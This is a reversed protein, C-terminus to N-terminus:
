TVISGADMDKDTTLLVCTNGKEACLLMAESVEGGFKSPKLNTLVVIRKGVLETEKYYDVLSTVIQVPKKEGIDVQLKYLKETKPVKEASIIKGIKLKLKKWTDFDIQDMKNVEKNVKKVNTEDDSTNMREAKASRFLEIAKKKAALAFPALKPGRDKNLLVKYAASFFEKPSIEVEEKCIKYFENFLTEENFRGKDMREAALHLADVQKESLDLGKAVKDQLTFKYQESAFESIWKRAFNLRDIVYAEGEKDLDEPLHGTEKLNAIVEEDSRFIQALTAAHTFPVQPPMKKPLEGTHSLEYIRSQKLKEKEDVEQADFYVREAYDYREYLLILDNSEYPQFDIVANPRSKVLLFRLMQAPAYDTSDAFGMGHGKSTSMKKGGVTFFEYGPGTKYGESPYPPPYKFVDTAIRCAITRSGGHTFHDKGATEVIVGKTPWKAAWEVKWPFKGGGNYPSREGEYGCGKAWTVFDPLCKYKIMERKADWETTVTTGIKGCKECIPNFPLRNSGMAEDGYLDTYTKQIKDANDLAIKITKNFAGKNYQEGTSELVADIGFEKFKDTVQAFYYAGFNDYGKVPSPMNMFPMGLYKEYEKPLESNMKDFPDIDDSSLVFRSKVGKKRLAKAIVDHIVWGRGSGIHIKGSPTKEDYVMYGYPNEKVIKQLFESKKVREIVEDAIRDAWHEVNVETKEM